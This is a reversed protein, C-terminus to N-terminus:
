VFHRKRLCARSGRQQDQPVCRGGRKIEITLRFKRVEHEDSLAMEYIPNEAPKARNLGLRDTM